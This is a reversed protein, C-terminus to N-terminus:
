AAHGAGGDSSDHFARFSQDDTLLRTTVLSEHTVPRLKLRFRHRAIRTTELHQGLQRCGCHVGTSHELLVHSSSPAMGRADGAHSSGAGSRQEWRQKQRQELQARTAQLEENPEDDEDEMMALPLCLQIHDDDFFYQAGSYEFSRAHKAHHLFGADMLMNGLRIAESQTEVYDRMRLKEVAQTGAFSKQGGLAASKNIARPKGTPPARRDLDEMLDQAFLACAEEQILELARVVSSATPRARADAQWMSEVLECLNVPLEPDLTPRDGAFVRDFISNERDVQRNETDATSRRYQYKEQGPHLVDRMTVALSYVDAAEGYATTGANNSRIVEPAMYEPSQNVTTTAVGPVEMLALTLSAGTVEAKETNPQQQRNQHQYGSNTRMALTRSAGFDTLKVTGETDLLFNSPHIDRHVFPPSFSHLYAVARAADTMYGLDILFQQRRHHMEESPRIASALLLERLSGQCLETVLCINPPCVCLGYFKLINPHRLAGCLAADHSFEAVTEETFTTPMYIKVAVPIKKSHLFGRFVSASDGTGITGHLELHAFDIIFKRHMEILVHLGQSSVREDVRGGNRRFVAQLEVARKGIGRWHETDARLLRWVFFPCLLTISTTIWNMVKAAEYHNSHFSEKTAYMMIMITMVYLCYERIAFVSARAPPHLFISGLFVLLALRAGHHVWYYLREHERTGYEVMAWVLPVTYSSLGITVFVARRLARLSLSAQLMFILVILYLFMRAAYMVELSGKSLYLTFMDCALSVFYFILNLSTVFCMLWLLPEFAPLIIKQAAHVDGKLAMQRHRRIRFLLAGCVVLELLFGLMIVLSLSAASRKAEDHIAQLIAMRKAESVSGGTGNSTPDLLGALFPNFPADFIPPEPLRPISLSVSPPPAPAGHNGTPSSTINPQM